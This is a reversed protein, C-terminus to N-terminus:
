RNAANLALLALIVLVATGILARVGWRLPRFDIM